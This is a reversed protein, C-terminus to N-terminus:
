QLGQGESRKSHLWSRHPCPAPHIVSLERVPLGAPLWCSASGTEQSGKEGAQSWLASGPWYIPMVCYSANWPYLRSPGLACGCSKKWLIKTQIESQSKGLVALHRLEHFPDRIGTFLQPYHKESCKCPPPHCPNQLLCHQCRKPDSCM